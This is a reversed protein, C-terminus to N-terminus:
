LKGVLWWVLLVFVVGWFLVGLAIYYYIAKHQNPQTLRTSVPTPSWNNHAPEGCGDNQYHTQGRPNDKFM